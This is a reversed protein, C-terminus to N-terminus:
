TFEKKKMRKRKNCTEETSCVLCLIVAANGHKKFLTTGTLDLGCNECKM